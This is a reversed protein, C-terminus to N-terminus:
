MDNVAVSANQQLTPRVVLVNLGSPPISRYPAMHIVTLINVISKHTLGTLLKADISGLSHGHRMIHKLRLPLTLIDVGEKQTDVSRRKM